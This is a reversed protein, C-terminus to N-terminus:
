AARTPQQSFLLNAVALTIPLIAFWALVMEYSGFIDRAIGLPM